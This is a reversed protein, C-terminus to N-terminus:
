TALKLVKDQQFFAEVLVVLAKLKSLSLDQHVSFNLIDNSLEFSKPFKKRSLEKVLQYYLATTRIGHELLHFYLPERQSNSVLVPYNHPVDGLSLARLPRIFKSTEFASALFQFNELRRNAILSLDSNLVSDVSSPPCAPLKQDFQQMAPQANIRLVGGSAVSFFKHLSYISYDGFSGLTSALRYGVHACDEVLVINNRQCSLKLRALNFHCFGFFHVALMVDIRERDIIAEVLQQNPRLNEDLPYFVPQVSMERIPDFIGSGERDSQGIFAPLLVRLRHASKSQVYRLIGLWGARASTTFVVKHRDTLPTSQNAILDTRM